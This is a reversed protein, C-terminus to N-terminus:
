EMEDDDDELPGFGEPYVPEQFLHRAEWLPRPVVPRAPAAAPITRNDPRAGEPGVRIAITATGITPM